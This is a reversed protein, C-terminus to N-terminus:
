CPVRSWDACVTRSKAFRKDAVKHFPQGSSRFHAVFLSQRAMREVKTDLRSVLDDDDCARMLLSRIWESLSLDRRLAAARMRAALDDSVHMQLSKPRTM